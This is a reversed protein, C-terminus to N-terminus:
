RLTTHGRFGSLEGGNVLGVGLGDESSRMTAEICARGCEDAGKYCFVPLHERPSLKVDENSVENFVGISSRRLPGGSRRAAKSLEGADFLDAVFAERPTGGGLFASPGNDVLCM